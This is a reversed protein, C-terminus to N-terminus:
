LTRHVGPVKWRMHGSDTRFHSLKGWAQVSAKTVVSEHGHRSCINLSVAWGTVRLIAHNLRHGNHLFNYLSYNQFKLKEVEGDFCFPITNEPKTHIKKKKGTFKTIPPPRCESRPCKTTNDSSRRRLLPQHLTSNTSPTTNTRLQTPGTQSLASVAHFIWCFMTWLLLPLFIFFEIMHTGDMKNCSPGIGGCNPGVQGVALGKEGRRIIRPSAHTSVPNRGGKSLGRSM